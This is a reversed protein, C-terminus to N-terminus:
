PEAIVGAEDLEDYIFLIALYARGRMTPRDCTGALQGSGRRPASGCSSLRGVVTLKWGVAAASHRTPAALAGGAFSSSQFSLRLRFSSWTRELAQSDIQNKMKKEISRHFGTESLNINKEM